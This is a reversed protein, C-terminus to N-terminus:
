WGEKKFFLIVQKHDEHFLLNLNATIEKAIIKRLVEDESTEETAKLIEGSHYLLRKLALEYGKIFGIEYDTDDYQHIWSSYCIDDSKLTIKSREITEEFYKGHKNLIEKIADTKSAMYEKAKKMSSHKEVDIEENNQTFVFYM